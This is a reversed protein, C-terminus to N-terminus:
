YFKNLTWVKSGLSKPKFKYLWHITSNKIRFEQLNYTNLVSEETADLVFRKKWYPFLDLYNFSVTLFSYTEVGKIELAKNEGESRREFEIKWIEKGYFSLLTKSGNEVQEIQEKTLIWYELIKENEGRVAAVAYDGRVTSLIEDVVKETDSKTLNRIYRIYDINSIDTAALEKTDIIKQKREQQQKWEEEYCPICIIKEFRSKEKSNLKNLTNNIMTISPDSIGTSKEDLLKNNNNLTGEILLIYTLSSKDLEIVSKRQGDNIRFQEQAQTVLCLTFVLFTIIKKM